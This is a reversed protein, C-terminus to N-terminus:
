LIRGQEDILQINTYANKLEPLTAIFKKMTAKAEADSAADHKVKITLGQMSVVEYCIKEWVLGNIKESLMKAKPCGIQLMITEKKHLFAAIHGM